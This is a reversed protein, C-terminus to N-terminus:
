RASAFVERLSTEIRDLLPELQTPTLHHLSPEGRAADITSQMWKKPHKRVLTALSVPLGGLLEQETIKLYKALKRAFHLGVSGGGTLKSIQQQKLGTVRAVASQSALPKKELVGLEVRLQTIRERLRDCEADTLARTGRAGQM